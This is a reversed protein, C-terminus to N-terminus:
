IDHMNTRTSTIYMKVAVTLLVDYTSMAATFTNNVCAHCCMPISLERLLKVLTVLVYVPCNLTLVRAPRILSCTALLRVVAPQHM